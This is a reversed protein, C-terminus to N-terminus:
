NKKYHLATVQHEQLLITINLFCEQQKVIRYVSPLWKKSALNVFFTKKNMFTNTYGSELGGM